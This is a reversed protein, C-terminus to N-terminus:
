PEDKWRKIEFKIKNELEKTIDINQSKALTFLAIIVDAIEKGLKERIDETSIKKDKRTHWSRLLLDAVEGLEEMAKLAQLTTFTKEPINNKVKVKTEIKEWLEDILNNLNNM